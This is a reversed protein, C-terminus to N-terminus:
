DINWDKELNKMESTTKKKHAAPLALPSLLSLLYRVEKSFDSVVLIEILSSAVFRISM